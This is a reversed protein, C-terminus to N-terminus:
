SPESEGHLLANIQEALRNDRLKKPTQPRQALIVKALIRALEDTHTESL